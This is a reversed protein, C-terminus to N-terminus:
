TNKEKLYFTKFDELHQVRKDLKWLMLVLAMTAVDGGAGLATILDIM